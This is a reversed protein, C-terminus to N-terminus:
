NKVGVSPASDVGLPDADALFAAIKSHGARNPHNWDLRGGRNYVFFEGLANDRRSADPNAESVFAFYADLYQIDPHLGQILLKQPGRDIFSEEWSIGLDGYAETAEASIQMEYPLIVVIVEVGRELLARGFRNVRDATAAIVDAYTEPFLEYSVQGLHTNYGFRFFLDKVSNRLHTYLYSRGRLWDTRRRVQDMLNMTRSRGGQVPGGEVSVAPDPFIDNLNFLLVVKDLQFEGASRALFEINADSLRHGIQALNMHEFQPLRAELLDSVRHGHGAGVGFCVSDGIYGIRRKTKVEAFEDDPYGDSNIYIDGYPYHLTRGATAVATYYGPDYTVRFRLFVEALCLVLVVGLVAFAFLTKKPNREFWSARPDKM